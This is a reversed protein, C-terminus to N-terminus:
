RALAGDDYDANYDAEIEAEMENRCTPCVTIFMQQIM